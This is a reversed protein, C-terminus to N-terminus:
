DAMTRKNILQFLREEEPTWEILNIPYKEKILRLEEDWYLDTFAKDYLEFCMENRLKNISSYIIDLTEIYQDYNVKEEKSLIILAKPSYKKMFSYLTRELEETGIKQKNLTLGQEGITIEIRNYYKLINNRYMRSEPLRILYKSFDVNEASDLFQNLKSFYRPQHPAEMGLYKFMPYNTPYKSYKVATSYQIKNLGSKRFEYRLMDVFAIPIDKDVHLNAMLQDREVEDLKNRRWSINKDIRNLDIQNNINDFFIIPNSDNTTDKVVYVNIVLSRRSIPQYSKSRPVELDYTYEFTKSLLNHNIKEINFFNKHAFIFSMAVFLALTFWFWKISKRGVIRRLSPWTSLFLVFPLLILVIPLENLIDLNYQLSEVFYWIGFISALKGFWCFFVWTFVGQVHLTRRILSKEQISKGLATKNLVFNISLMYGLATALGAYFLNYRFTEEEKLVLLISEGFHSSLIRFAERCCYFFAYLIYSFLIWLVLGTIMTQKEILNKRTLYGKILAM